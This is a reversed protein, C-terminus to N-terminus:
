VPRRFKLPKDIRPDNMPASEVQRQSVSLEHVRHQLSRSEFQQDGEFSISAEAVM